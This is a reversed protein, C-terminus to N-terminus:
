LGLEDFAASIQEDTWKKARLEKIAEAASIEDSINRSKLWTVVNGSNKDKNPSALSQAAPDNAVWDQYVSMTAKRKNVSAWTLFRNQLARNIHNGM